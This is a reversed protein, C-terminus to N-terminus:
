MSHPAKIFISKKLQNPSTSDPFVMHTLPSNANKEHISAITKQVM